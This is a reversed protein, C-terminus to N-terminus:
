NGDYHYFVRQTKEDRVLCSASGDKFIDNKLVLMVAIKGKWLKHGVNGKRDGQIIGQINLNAFLCVHFRKKSGRLYQNKTIEQM